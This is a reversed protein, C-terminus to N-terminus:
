ALAFARGFAPWVPTGGLLLAGALGLSYATALVRWLCDGMCVLWRRGVTGMWCIMLFAGVQQSLRAAMGALFPLRACTLASVLALEASFGCM